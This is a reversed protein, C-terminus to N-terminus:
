GNLRRIFGEIFDRRKRLFELSDRGHTFAIEWSLETLHKELVNRLSDRDEDTLDIAM